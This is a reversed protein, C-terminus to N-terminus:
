FEPHSNHIEIQMLDAKSLTEFDLVPRVFDYLKDASRNIFVIYTFSHM